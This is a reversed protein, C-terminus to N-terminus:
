WRHDPHRETRCRQCVSHREHTGVAEHESNRSLFLVAQVTVVMVPRQPVVAAVEAAASDQLMLAPLGQQREPMAAMEASDTFRTVAVVAAVTPTLLAVLRLVLAVRVLVAVLAVLTVLRAGLAVTAELSGKQRRHSM